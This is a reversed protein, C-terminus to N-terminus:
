YKSYACFLLEVYTRPLTNKKINLAMPVGYFVVWNFNYLLYCKTPTPYLLPVEKFKSVM